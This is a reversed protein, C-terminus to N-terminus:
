SEQLMKLSKKHNQAREAEATQLLMRFTQLLVKKSQSDERNLNKVIAAIDKMKLDSLTKAGTEGLVLFLTDVFEEKEAANMSLIFRRLTADFKYSSASIDDVYVFSKGMVEWSFPDHQMIGHATSAVVHYPEEHEFLMGIVSSQPVITDVMRSIIDIQEKGLVEAAFGPGDFNHVSLIRDRVVGSAYAAAYAALNGGKSHGGMRIFGNKQMAVRNLYALAQEQSPVPAKFSMNFDEKWGVLTDDTGRFAIYFEHESLEIVIAAFQKEHEEDVQNVYCSLKLDRYRQARSMEDFLEYIAVPIIRGPSRMEDANLRAFEEGAQGITVSNTEDIVLSLLEFEVYSLTSFILSDVEQFPSQRFSLDGRWTIYDLISAMFEGRINM